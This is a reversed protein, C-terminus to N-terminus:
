FILLYIQLLVAITMIVTLWILIKSYKSSTQNLDNIEEMLFPIQRLLRNLQLRDLGMENIESLQRAQEIRNNNEKKM